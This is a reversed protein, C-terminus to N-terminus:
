SNYNLLDYTRLYSESEPFYCGCFEAPYTKLIFIGVNGHTSSSHPIRQQNKMAPPFAGESRSKVVAAEHHLNSEKPAPKRLDITSIAGNRFGCFLINGQSPCFWYVLQFLQVEVDSVIADHTSRSLCRVNVACVVLM